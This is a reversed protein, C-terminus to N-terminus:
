QTSLNLGSIWSDIVSTDNLLRGDQVTANSCSQRIERVSASIGSGGSTAFPIITKGSFDYSELFTLIPRPVTGHWIPYGIFITDYQDMNTVATTVAPRENNDIERDARTITAQYSSPYPDAVELELLAAGTLDQIRQAARETTGTRSFYVILQNGIGETDAAQTATTQTMVVGDSVWAGNENVQYGDPTMDGAVMWGDGDFYYCEAIGDQNGDIWQWGDRAYTGDEYDYWWRNQNTGAGTKWTAAFATMGFVLSMLLGLVCLMIWKKQKM